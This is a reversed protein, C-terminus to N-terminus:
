KQASVSRLWRIQNRDPVAGTSRPSTHFLRLARSDAGGGPVMGLGWAGACDAGAWVLLAPVVPLGLATHGCARLPAPKM